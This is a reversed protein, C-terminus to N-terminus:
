KFDNLIVDSVRSAGNFDYKGFTEKYLSQRVNSDYFLSQLAEVNLKLTQLDFVELAQGNKTAYTFNAKQNEVSAALGVLKRNAFLDWMTTGSTSIATDCDGAISDFGSGFKHFNLNSDDSKVVGYNGIFEFSIDRYQDKVLEEVLQSFIRENVSGGTSVLVRKARQTFTVSQRAFERIPLYEIGHAIVRSKTNIDQYSFPLDMYLITADSLLFTYRDAIQLIRSNSFKSNVRLCFQEEYSDLLIVDDRGFDLKSDIERFTRDAMEKVWEIEISGFFYKEISAPLAKSIEILRRIHGAGSFESVNTAFIFRQPSM